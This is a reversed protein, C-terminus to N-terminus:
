YSYVYIRSSIYNKNPTANKIVMTITNGNISYSVVEGYEKYSWEWRKIPFDVTKTATYTAGSNIEGPSGMYVDLKVNKVTWHAYLTIDNEFSYTTNADIKQGNTADTYWGQFDWYDRSPTPVSGVNTGYLVTKSGQSVSGGNANFTITYQATETTKEAVDEAKKGNKAVAVVKLSYKKSQSLGTFVHNEDETTADLRYDADNESKIYYEIQGGDNRSTTVEVTITNTTSTINKTKIIPSMDDKKGLFTVAKLEVKYVDGDVIVYFYVDVEKNDEEKSVEEVTVDNGMKKLENIKNLTDERTATIIEEASGFPNNTQENILKLKLYETIQARKNEIEAQKANQFVGTHTLARISIGALILLIIITIVLAILTIGKNEQKKM